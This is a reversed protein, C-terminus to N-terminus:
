RFVGKHRMKYLIFGIFGVMCVTMAIMTWRYSEFVWWHFLGCLLSATGAALGWEAIRQGLPNRMSAHIVFCLALLAGGVSVFLLGRSMLKGRAATEIAALEAEQTAKIQASSQM